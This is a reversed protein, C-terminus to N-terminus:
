FHYNFGLRGTFGFSLSPALYLDPGLEFFIGAQPLDVSSLRYEGGILAEIGLGFGGGVTVFPGSGAYVDIPAGELDIDLHILADAGLYFGSAFLYSYGLNGRVDVGAGLADTAGVHINVGPSGASVGFWYGSASFGSQGLAGGLMLVVLLVVVNRM